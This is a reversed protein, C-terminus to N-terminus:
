QKIIFLNLEILVFNYSIRYVYFFNLVFILEYINLLAHGRSINKCIKKIM